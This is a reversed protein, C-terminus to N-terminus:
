PDTPTEPPLWGSGTCTVSPAVAVMIEAPPNVVHATNDLLLKCHQPRLLLPCSPLPVEPEVPTDVGTYVDNTGADNM